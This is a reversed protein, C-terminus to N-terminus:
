REHESQVVPEGEGELKLSLKLVESGRKVVIPLTKGPGFLRQYLTFLRTRQADLEDISVVIDGAKVGEKDGPSGPRVAAVITDSDPRLIILGSRNRKDPEYFRKGKQLYIRSGPFDFTVHYRSLFGVSLRNQLAPAAMLQRHRFPGAVLEDLRGIGHEGEHGISLSRCQGAEKISGNGKLKKFLNARVDLSVLGLMGTDVIFLEPRGRGGINAEVNVSGEPARVFIRLPYGKKHLVRKQFTLTGTDFDIDIVYKFLFDLGLFGRIDHGSVARFQSLDRMGVLGDRPFPLKGIYAQPPKYFDIVVRAHVGQLDRSDMRPGMLSRFSTDFISCTCGTDLVFPYTKGEITVPVILWDGDGHVAFRELVKKDSPPAAATVRPASVFLLTLGLVGCICRM